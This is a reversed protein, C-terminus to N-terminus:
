LFRKPHESKGLLSNPAISIEFYTISELTSLEYMLLLLRDGKRAYNKLISEERDVSVCIM